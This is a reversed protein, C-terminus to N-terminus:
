TSVYFSLIAPYASDDVEYEEVYGGEDEIIDIIYRVNDPHAEIDIFYYGAFDERIIIDPSVERYLAELIRDIM